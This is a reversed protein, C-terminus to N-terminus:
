CTLKDTNVFNWIEESTDSERIGKTPKCSQYAIFLLVILTHSGCIINKSIKFDIKINLINNKLYKIVSTLFVFNTLNNQDTPIEHDLIKFSYQSQHYQQYSINSPM